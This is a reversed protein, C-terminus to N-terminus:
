TQLKEKQYGNHQLGPKFRRWPHNWAPINPKRKKFIFIISKKQKKEPRETIEKYKL